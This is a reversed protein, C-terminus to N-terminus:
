YVQIKPELSSFTQQWALQYQFLGYLTLRMQIFYPM